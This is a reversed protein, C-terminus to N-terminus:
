EGHMALEVDASRAYSGVIRLIRIAWGDLGYLRVATRGATSTSTDLRWVDLMLV